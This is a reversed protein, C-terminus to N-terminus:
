HNLISNLSRCSLSLSLLATYRTTEFLSRNKPNPRLHSQLVLKFNNPFLIYRDKRGKGEEIFVKCQNFNVDSVKIKVLESARVTTFFLLKLMIEHQLNRLRLNDSFIKLEIESLIQPPGM